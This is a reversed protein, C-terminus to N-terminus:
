SKFFSGHFRLVLQNYLTSLFQHKKTNGLKISCFTYFQSWMLFSINEYYSKKLLQEMTYNSHPFLLDINNRRFWGQCPSAAKFVFSDPLSRWSFSGRRLSAATNSLFLQFKKINIGPVHKLTPFNLNFCHKKDKTDKGISGSKSRPQIKYRYIYWTM